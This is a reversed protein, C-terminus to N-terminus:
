CRGIREPSQRQRSFWRRVEALELAQEKDQGSGCGDYQGFGNFITCGSYCPLLIENTEANAECVPQYCRWLNFKNLVVQEVDELKGHHPPSGLSRHLRRTPQCSLLAMSSSRKDKELAVCWSIVLGCPHNAIYVPGSIKLRCTPSCASCLTSGKFLWEKMNSCNAVDHPHLGDLNFLCHGLAPGSRFPAM